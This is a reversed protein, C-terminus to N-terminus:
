PFVYWIGRGAGRKSLHGDAVLKQLHRKITNRSVGLATESEQVTIKGRDRVLDLLNVSLEPLKGLFTKEREVKARLRVVQARLSRLFFLLWPQWDPADTRITIQTQRLAIYYGSKNQEIISELSSYRARDCVSTKTYQNKSLVPYSVTKCKIVYALSQSLMKQQFSIPAEPRPSHGADQGEAYPM